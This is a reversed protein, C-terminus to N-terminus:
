RNPDEKTPIIYRIKRYFADRANAIKAVVRYFPRKKSGGRTLLIKNGDM